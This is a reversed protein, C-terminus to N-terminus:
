TWAVGDMVLRSHGQGMLEALRHESLLQVGPTVLARVRQSATTCSWEALHVQCRPQGTPPSSQAQQHAQAPEQEQLEQPGGVRSPGALPPMAAAAQWGASAGAGGGSAAMCGEKAAGVSSHVRQPLPPWELQAAAAMSAQKGTIIHLTGGGGHAARGAQHESLAKRLGESWSSGQVWVLRSGAAAGDLGCAALLKPALSPPLTSAVLVRAGRAGRVVEVAASHPSLQELLESGLQGGGQLLLQQQSDDYAAQMAALLAAPETRSEISWRLLCSDLCLPWHEAVEAVLLPRTRRREGTGSSGGVIPGARQVASRAGTPLCALLYAHPPAFLPAVSGALLQMFGPARM